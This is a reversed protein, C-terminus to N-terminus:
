DKSSDVTYLLLCTLRGHCGSLYLIIRGRVLFLRIHSRLLFRINDGKRPPVSGLFVSSSNTSLPSGWRFGICYDMSLLNSVLVTDCCQQPELTQESSAKRTKAPGYQVGVRAASSWTLYVYIYRRYYVNNRENSERFIGAKKQATEEGPALGVADHACVRAGRMRGSRM